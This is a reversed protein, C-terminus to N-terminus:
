KAPNGLYSFITCHLGCSSTHHLLHFNSPPLLQLGNHNFYSIKAFKVFSRVLSCLCSLGRGPSQSPAKALSPDQFTFDMLNNM